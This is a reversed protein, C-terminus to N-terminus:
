RRGTWCTNGATRWTWADMISMLTSKGSGSPGVIAVFEGERITLTARHLARVEEGGVTYTKSVNRMDIIPKAANPM